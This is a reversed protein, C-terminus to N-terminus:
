SEISIDKLSVNVVHVERRRLYIVETSSKEREGLFIM